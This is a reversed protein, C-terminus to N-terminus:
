SQVEFCYAAQSQAVLLCECLCQQTCICVQEKKSPDLYCWYDEQGGAEAAGQEDQQSAAEPEPKQEEM